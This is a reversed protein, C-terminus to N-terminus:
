EYSFIINEGHMNIEAATKCVVRKKVNACMTKGDM